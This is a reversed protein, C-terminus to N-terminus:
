PKGAVGSKHKLPLSVGVLRDVLLEVLEETVQEKSLRGEPRYWYALWVLSGVFNLTTVGVDLVAINGEDKIKRITDGVFNYFIHRRARIKNRLKVNLGNAENIIITIEQRETMILNAYARVLTRLRETPDDVLRAPGLVDAEVLDMGYNMAEYLLSEKSSVYHYLGSKTLGAAKAIDNLSTTEYGKEHIIRAAVQYIQGLREDKPPQPFPKAKRKKAPKM